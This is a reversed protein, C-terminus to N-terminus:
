EWGHWGESPEILHLRYYDAHFGLWLRAEPTEGGALNYLYEAKADCYAHHAEIETDFYGLLVRRDGVRVQAGFRRGGAQVGELLKGRTRKMIALNAKQSLLLCTDPGYHTNRWVKLDKDLVAGEFWQDIGWAYFSRYDSWEDALTATAYEARRQRGKESTRKRVERWMRHLPHDYIQPRITPAKGIRTNKRKRSNARERRRNEMESKCIVSCTANMWHGAEFSASCISCKKAYTKKETIEKKVTM